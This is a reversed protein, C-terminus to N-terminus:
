EWDFPIPNLNRAGQYENVIPTNYEFGPTAPYPSALQSGYSSVTPSNTLSSIDAFPSSPTTTSPSRLHGGFLYQALGPYDGPNFNSEYDDTSSYGPSYSERDSPSWFNSEGVLGKSISATNNPRPMDFSNRQANILAAHPTNFSNRRQNKRSAIERDLSRAYPLPNSTSSVPQNNSFLSQSYSKYWPILSNSYAQEVEYNDVDIPFFYAAESGDPIARDLFNQCGANGRCPIRESIVQVKHGNTTALNKFPTPDERFRDIVQRPYQPYNVSKKFEKALGAERKSLPEQMYYERPPPLEKNNPYLTDILKDYMQLLAFTESHSNSTKMRYLTPDSLAGALIPKEGRNAQEITPFIEVAAANRGWDRYPRSRLKGDDELRVGLTEALLDENGPTMIGRGPSKFPYELEKPDYDQTNTPM